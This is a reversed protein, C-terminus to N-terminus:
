GRKARQMSDGASRAIVAVPAYVGICRFGSYAVNEPAPRRYLPVFLMCRLDPSTISIVIFAVSETSGSHLFCVVLRCADSMLRM